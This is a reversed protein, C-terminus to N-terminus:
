TILKKNQCHLSLFAFLMKWSKQSREKETSAVLGVVQSLCACVARYKDCCPCKPCRLLPFLSGNIIVSYMYIFLIYSIIPYSQIDFTSSIINFMSIPLFISFHGMEFYTSTENTKVYKDYIPCEVVLKYISCEIVM